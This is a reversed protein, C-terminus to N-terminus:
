CDDGACDVAREWISSHGGWARPPGEVRPVVLSAPRRMHREETLPQAKRASGVLLDPKGHSSVEFVEARFVIAAVHHSVLRDGDTDVRVLYIGNLPHGRSVCQDDPSGPSLMCDALHGRVFGKARTVHLDALLRVIARRAHGRHKGTCGDHEGLATAPLEPCVLVVEAAVAIVARVHRCQGRVEEPTAVLDGLGAVLM